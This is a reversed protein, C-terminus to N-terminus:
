GLGTVCWEGGQSGAMLDGEESRGRIEVKIPVTASGADGSPTGTRTIRVSDPVEDFNVQGAGGCVLQGLAASDRSNYAEIFRDALTQVAAADFSGAGPQDADGGPGPMPASSQGPLGPQDGPLPGQGPGPAQQGTNPATGGPQAQQESEGEDGGNLVLVLTVVGGALALGALSLGM